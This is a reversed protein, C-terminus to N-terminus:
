HDRMNRLRIMITLDRLTFCIDILNMKLRKDVQKMRQFKKIVRLNLTRMNTAITIDVQKKVMSLGSEKVYGVFNM